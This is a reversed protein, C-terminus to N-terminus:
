CGEPPRACINPAPRQPMETCTSRRSERRHGQVLGDDSAANDGLDIPDTTSRVDLLEQSFGYRRRTALENVDAIGVPRRYIETDVVLALPHADKAVCESTAGCSDLAPRFVLVPDLNPETGLFAPMRPEM